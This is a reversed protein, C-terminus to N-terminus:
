LWSSGGLRSRGKSFGLGLKLWPEVERTRLLAVFSGSGDVDFAGLVVSLVFFDGARFRAEVDECLAAEFLFRLEVFAVFFAGM